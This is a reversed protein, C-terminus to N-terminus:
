KWRLGEAVQKYLPIYDAVVKKVSWRERNQAMTQKPNLKDVEGVAKVFDDATGCLYGDVGHTVLEPLAGIPPVIVPMGCLMAEQLKHNTVEPHETIYLLAKNFQMMHIKSEETYDKEWWVKINDGDCNALVSEEYDNFPADPSETARATIIDLKLGLNKCLIAANINGKEEGMRGVVLFRDNRSGGAPPKYKDVDICVSYQYRAKQHYVREFERTAWQSLGIINYPAKPYQALAPAHWFLNLSPLNPMMRSALHQHSFDHIVDYQRIVSQYERYQRLEDAIFQENPLPKTPYVKVGEPFVSDAHGLVAVEHEKVLERAYEWVLREIGVYRSEANIVKGLPSVLLVRM